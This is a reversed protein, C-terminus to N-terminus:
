TRHGGWNRAYYTRYEDEKKKKARRNGALNPIQEQVKRRARSISEYSPLGYKKHYYLADVFSTEKTLRCEAGTEERLEYCAWAYLKMDDDRTDPHDELIDKVLNYYDRM